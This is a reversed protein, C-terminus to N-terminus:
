GQKVARQKNKLQFELVSRKAIENLEVVSRRAPKKGVSFHELLMDIKKEIRQLDEATM